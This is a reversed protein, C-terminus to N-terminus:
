ATLKPLHLRTQALLTSIHTAIPHTHAGSKQLNRVTMLQPSGLMCCPAVVFFSLVCPRGPQFILTSCVSFLLSQNMLRKLTAIVTAMHGSNIPHFGNHIWIQGKGLSMKGWRSSTDGRRMGSSWREMSTRGGPEGTERCRARCTSPEGGTPPAKM